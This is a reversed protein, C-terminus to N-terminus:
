VCINTYMFSYKHSYYISAKPTGRHTATAIFPCLRMGTCM